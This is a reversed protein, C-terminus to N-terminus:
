VTDLCIAGTGGPSSCGVIPAEGIRKQCCKDAGSAQTGGSLGAGAQAGNTAPVAPLEWAARM